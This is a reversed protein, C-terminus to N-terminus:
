APICEPLIVASEVPFNAQRLDAPMFVLGKERTEM